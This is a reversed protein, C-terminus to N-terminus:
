YAERRLPTARRENPTADRVTHTRRNPDLAYNQSQLPESLCDQSCAFAAHRCIDTFCFLCAKKNTIPCVPM